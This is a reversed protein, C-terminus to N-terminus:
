TKTLLAGHGLLANPHRGVVEFADCLFPEHLELLVVVRRRPPSEFIEKIQSESRRPARHGEELQRLTSAGVGHLLVGVVELTEEKASPPEVFGLSDLQECVTQKWREAVGDPEV